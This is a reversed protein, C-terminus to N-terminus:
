VAIFLQEVTRLQAMLADWRRCYDEAQREGEDLRSRIEASSLPKGTLRVVENTLWDRLGQQHQRLWENNRRVSEAADPYRDLGSEDQPRERLRNIDLYFAVGDPTKALFKESHGSPLDAEWENFALPAYRYAGAWSTRKTGHHETMEGPGWGELIRACHYARIEQRYCSRLGDFEM